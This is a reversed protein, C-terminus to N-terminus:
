VSGQEEVEESPKSKKVMSNTHMETYDKRNRCLDIALFLANRFSSEDAINQGAIDLATGHDPSTRIIPLGATYNVGAGFSITKFPVLGQDHYMALIADAKKYKGSGFFGDAPYPGLVMIGNKKAQIIAPRITTEEEEGIAGEDGAHPNLGLVAIVPKELGFDERLTKDLIKIKKSLLEKTISESVRSLPVHTTALSVKLEDSVLTMLENNSKLQDAFFETHGPYPFNALSMAKKNIPATVVADLHGDRVDNIMRDLSMYAYKGGEETIKGISIQANEQWCNVVNIKNYSAKQASQCSVFSFNDSKVINKHYATVKTSGYIVPTCMELVKPNSLTKIIVELGVGNIDGISIGIKINNSM